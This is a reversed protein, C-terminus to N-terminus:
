AADETDDANDPGLHAALDQREERTWAPLGALLSDRRDYFRDLTESPGPIYLRTM